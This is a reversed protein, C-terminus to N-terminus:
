STGLLCRLNFFLFLFVRGMISFCFLRSVRDPSHEIIPLLLHYNKAVDQASPKGVTSILRCVSGGKWQGSTVLNYSWVPLNAVLAHAVSDVQAFNWGIKGPGSFDFDFGSCSIRDFIAVLGRSSRWSKAAEAPDALLAPRPLQQAEGDGGAAAAAGCAPVLAMAVCVRPTCFQALVTAKCLSAM